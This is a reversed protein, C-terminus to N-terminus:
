ILGRFKVYARYETSMIIIKRRRTLSMKQNILKLQYFLEFLFVHSYPFFVGRGAGKRSVLMRTVGTGRVLMGM